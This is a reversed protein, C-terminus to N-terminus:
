IVNQVNQMLLEKLKPDLEIEIGSFIEQVKQAKESEKFQAVSKRYREREKELISARNREYYARRRVKPNDYSPPRGRKKNINIPQEEENQNMKTRNEQLKTM